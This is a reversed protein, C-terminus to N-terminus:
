IKIWNNPIMDGRLHSEQRKKENFWCKPVIVTKDKKTDLYAAWWSFTSNANIHHQCSKILEFDHFDMLDEKPVIYTANEINLNQKCWDIDDSFIFFAPNDVRKKIYDISKNYYDTNSINNFVLGAKPNLYDTRRIHISVSSSGSNIIMNQYEKFSSTYLSKKLVISNQIEVRSIDFYVLKSWHGELYSRSKLRDLQKDYDTFKNEVILYKFFRSYLFRLVKCLGKTRRYKLYLYEFLSVDKRTYLDVPAEFYDLKFNRFSNSASIDYKVSFGKKILGQGLAYQFLQNGLGGSLGIIIM